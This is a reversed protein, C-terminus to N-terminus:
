EPFEQGSRRTGPWARPLLRRIASVNADAPNEVNVDIIVQRWLPDGNEVAHGKRDVADDGKQSRHQKKAQGDALAVVPAVEGDQERYAVEFAAPKAGGM